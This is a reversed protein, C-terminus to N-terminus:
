MRREALAATCSGLFFASVTSVKITSRKCTNIIWQIGRVEAISLVVPQRSQVIEIPM